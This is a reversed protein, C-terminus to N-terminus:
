NSKNKKKEHHAKYKNFHVWHIAFLIILIVIGFLMMINLIRYNIAPDITSDCLGADNCYSGTPCQSNLKCLRPVCTGNKGCIFNNSADQCDASKTCTYPTCKTNKDNTGWWIRKRPEGEIKPLLLDDPCDNSM